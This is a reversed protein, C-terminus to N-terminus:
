SQRLLHDGRRWVPNTAHFVIGAINQRWSDELLNRRESSAFPQVLVYSRISYIRRTGGTGDRDRDCPEQPNFFVFKYFDLGRLQGLNEKPVEYALGSSLREGVDTNETAIVCVGKQESFTFWVREHDLHSAEFSPKTLDPKKRHLHSKVKSIKMHMWGQLNHISM